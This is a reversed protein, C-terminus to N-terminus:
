AGVSGAGELVAFLQDYKATAACSGLQNVRKTGVSTHISIFRRSVDPNGAGPLCGITKKLSFFGEADALALLGALTNKADALSQRGTTTGTGTITGDLTLKVSWPRLSGGKVGFTFVTPSTSGSGSPLHHVTPHRCTSSAAARVPVGFPVLLALAGAVVAARSIFAM